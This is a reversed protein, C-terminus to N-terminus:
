CGRNECACVIKFLKFDKRQGMQFGRYFYILGETSCLALVGEDENFAMSLIYTSHHPIPLSVSNVVKTVANNKSIGPIAENSM